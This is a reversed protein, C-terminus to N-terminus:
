RLNCFNRMVKQLDGFHQFKWKHIKTQFPDSFFAIEFPIPIYQVIVYYDNMKWIKQYLVFTVTPDTTNHLSLYLGYNNNTFKIVRM